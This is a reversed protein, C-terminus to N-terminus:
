IKAMMNVPSVFRPDAPNILAAFPAAEAALQALTGYDYPWGAKLWDRRCEQVIWLGVINKLLRVSGGFGIENTFNLERCAETIIPSPLEVGMLSWTGSSLYAWNGASAPVAAVAAATDHSCSAIVELAPLGTERALKPKLPGLRTGSPVIPPFLRAPLDLADLLR